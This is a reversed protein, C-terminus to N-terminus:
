LDDIRHLLIDAEARPVESNLKDDHKEKKKKQTWYAYMATGIPGALQLFQDVGSVKIKMGPQSEAIAQVISDHKAIDLHSTFVNPDGQYDLITRAANHIINKAIQYRSATGYIVKNMEKEDCYTTYAKLLVEYPMVDFDQELFTKDMNNLMEKDHNDTRQIVKFIKLIKLRLAADEESLQEEMVNRRKNVEDLLQLHGEKKRKKGSKEEEAEKLLEERKRKGAKKLAKIHSIPADEDEDSEVGEKGKEKDKQKEKPKPEEERYLPEGDDFFGNDEDEVHRELASLNYEPKNGYVIKYGKEEDQLDDPHQYLRFHPMQNTVHEAENGCGCNWPHPTKMETFTNTDTNFHLFHHKPLKVVKDRFESFGCFQSSRLGWTDWMLKLGNPESQRFIFIDKGNNRLLTSVEEQLQHSSVILTCNASRLTTILEKAKDTKFFGKTQGIFDDFYVVIHHNRNARKIKRGLNIIKEISDADWQNHVYKRNVIDYNVEYTEIGDKSFIVLAVIKEANTLTFYQLLTTKGSNFPALVIGLTPLTFPHTSM